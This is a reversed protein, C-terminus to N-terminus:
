DLRDLNNQVFYECISYQTIFSEVADIHGCSKCVCSGRILNYEVDNNEGKIKITKEFDLNCSPCVFHYQKNRPLILTDNFIFYNFFRSDKYEILLIFTINNIKYSKEIPKSKNINNIINKFIEGAKKKDLTSTPM